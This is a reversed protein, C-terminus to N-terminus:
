FTIRVNGQKIRCQCALREDCSGAGLFDEEEQTPNSLNEKGEKVEIVCTGCVGETCAFPVGAEECAEAIASGDPLEIEEENGDFILKAM